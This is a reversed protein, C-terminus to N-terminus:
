ESRVDLITPVTTSFIRQRLENYGVDSIKSCRKLAALVGLARGYLMMWRSYAKKNDRILYAADIARRERELNDVLELLWARAQDETEIVPGLPSFEQEAM